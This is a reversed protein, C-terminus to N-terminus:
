HQKGTKTKVKLKNNVTYGELSIAVRTEITFMEIETAIGRKPTLPL